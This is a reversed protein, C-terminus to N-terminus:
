DSSSSPSLPSTDRGRAAKSHAIATFLTKSAFGSITEKEDIPSSSFHSSIVRVLDEKTYHASLGSINFVRKYRRLTAMELKSFDVRMSQADSNHKRTATQAGSPVIQIKRAHIKHRSVVVPPMKRTSHRFEPDTSQFETEEELEGPDGSASRRTPYRPERHKAFPISSSSSASCISGNDEDADMESAGSVAVDMKEDFLPPKGESLPEADSSPAPEGPGHPEYKSRAQQEQKLTDQKTSAASQTLLLSQAPAPISSISSDCSDLVAADLLPLTATEMMASDLTYSDIPGDVKMGWFHKLEYQLLLRKYHLRLAFGANTCTPPLRLARVVAHWQKNQIVAQMGGRGVVERYLVYLNLERRGLTPIKVLPQNCSELFGKLSQMFDSQRQQEEETLILENLDTEPRRSNSPSLPSDFGINAGSGGSDAAASASAFNPTTPTTPTLPSLLLKTQPPSSPVFDSSSHPSSVSANITTTTTTTTTTTARASATASVSATTTASISSAPAPFGLNSTMTRKTPSLIVTPAANNNLVDNLLSPIRKSRLERFPKYFMTLDDLQGAIPSTSSASISQTHVSTGSTTTM